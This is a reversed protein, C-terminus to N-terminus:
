ITGSVGATGWQRLGLFEGAGSVFIRKPTIVFMTRSHVLRGAKSPMPDAELSGTVTLGRGGRERSYPRGDPRARVSTRRTWSAGYNISNALGSREAHEIVM